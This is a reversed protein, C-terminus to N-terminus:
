NIPRLPVRNCLQLKNKKEKGHTNSLTTSFLFTFCIDQETTNKESGKPTTDKHFPKELHELFFFLKMSLALSLTKLIFVTNQHHVFVLM